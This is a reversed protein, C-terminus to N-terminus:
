GPDVLERFGRKALGARPWKSQLSCEAPLQTHTDPLHAASMFPPHLVQSVSPDSRHGPHAWHAGHITVVRRSGAGFWEHSGASGPEPQPGKESGKEFSEADRLHGHAKISM